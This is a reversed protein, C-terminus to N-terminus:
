LFITCLSCLFVPFLLSPEITLMDAQPDMLGLEFGAQLLNTHKKLHIDMEPVGKIKSNNAVAAIIPILIYTVLQRGKRM